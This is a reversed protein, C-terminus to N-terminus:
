CGLTVTLSLILTSLKFRDGDSRHGVIKFVLCDSLNLYVLAYKKDATVSLFFRLMQIFKGMPKPMGHHRVEGYSAKTHIHKLEASWM